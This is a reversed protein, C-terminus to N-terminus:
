IYKMDFDQNWDTKDSNASKAMKYGGTVEFPREYEIGILDINM